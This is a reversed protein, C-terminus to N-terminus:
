CDRLESSNRRLFLTYAKDLAKIDAAILMADSLAGQYRDRLGLVQMQKAKLKTSVKQFLAAHRQATLQRTVEETGSGVLSNLEQIIADTLEHMSERLKLNRKSQAERAKDDIIKLQEATIDLADLVDDPLAGLNPSATANSAVFKVADEVSLPKDFASTALTELETVCFDYLEVNQAMAREATDDDTDSKLFAHANYVACCIASNAIARYATVQGVHSMDPIADFVSAGVEITPHAFDNGEPISVHHIDSPDVVSGVLQELAEVGRPKDNKSM